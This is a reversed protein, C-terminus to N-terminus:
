FFLSNSFELESNKINIKYITLYTNAWLRAINM